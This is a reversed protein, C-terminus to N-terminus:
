AWGVGTSESLTAPLWRICIGDAGGGGSASPGESELVAESSEKGGRTNARQCPTAAMKEISGFEIRGQLEIENSRM